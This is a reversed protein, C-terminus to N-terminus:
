KEIKLIVGELPYITLLDDVINNPKSTITSLLLKSKKYPHSLTHYKKSFNLIVLTREKGLIREFILYDSNSGDTIKLEGEQLTIEQKRVTILEK